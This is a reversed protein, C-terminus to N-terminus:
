VQLHRMVLCGNTYQELSETGKAIIALWLGGVLLGSLSSPKNNSGYPVPVAHYCSAHERMSKLRSKVIVPKSDTRSPQVVLVFRHSDNRYLQRPPRHLGQGTRKQRCLQRPLYQQSSHRRRRPEPNIPPFPFRFIVFADHSTDSSKTVQNIVEM